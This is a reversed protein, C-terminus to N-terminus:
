DGEFSLLPDNPGSALRRNESRRALAVSGAAMGAGIGGNIVLPGLLYALPVGYAM